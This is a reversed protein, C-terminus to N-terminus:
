RHEPGPAPLTVDVRWLDGQAGTRATGGLRRVRERLGVLGRGGRDAPADSAGALPNTVAVRLDKGEKGARAVVIRVPQDPAHRLANTLSEQVIRYAERSVVGPVSGPDDVNSELAVSQGGQRSVAVLSDLSRLDHAPARRRAGDEDRLLAVVDDLDELARGAV